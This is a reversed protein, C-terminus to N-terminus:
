PPSSSGGGLVDERDCGWELFLDIGLLLFYEEHFNM